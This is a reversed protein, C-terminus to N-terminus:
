ALHREVRVTQRWEIEGSRLTMARVMGRWAEAPEDVHLLQNVRLAGPLTGGTLIPLSVAQEAQRGGAGLISRGRERAADTHTILDDTVLSALLAGATGARRVHGIVGQTTGCVYVAEWAPEERIEMDDTTIAASSVAVDPVTDVASWEWPMLPYRPLFSLKADTPHSQLVAGVSEAIRVAAALPTGRFSWAGAPVLWDPIQWEVDVGTFELAQLVLQQATTDSANLWTQAPLKPGGVLGTISRGTIQVLREGPERSRRFGEVAFVWPMGDVTIRIQKPTSTPKLQDLLHLPGTASLSWVPNGEDASISVDFLRVPELTPLLVAFISHTTMYYRLLPIVLPAPQGSHRECIFLLNNGPAWAESFVLDNSPVYCPEKPPEVPDVPQIGAPPKMGQQFRTAWDRGLHTGPRSPVAIGRSLARGDQWSIALEPRLDRSGDQWRSAVLEVKLATGQQFRVDVQPRAGRLADGHRLVADRGAQRIGQQYRLVTPVVMAQANQHSPSVSQGLHRGQEWDADLAAGAKMGVRHRLEIDNELPAAEQWGSRLSGVLPRSAGSVYAARVDVVPPPFTAAISMALAIGAHVAVAPPPLMAFVTVRTDGVGPGDDDGFVLDNSTGSAPRSFVLDNDSM